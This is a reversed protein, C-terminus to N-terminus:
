ARPDEMQLQAVLTSRHKGGLRELAHLQRWVSFWARKNLRLRHIRGALVAARRHYDALKRWGGRPGTSPMKASM